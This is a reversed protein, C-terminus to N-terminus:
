KVSSCQSSICSLRWGKVRPMVRCVVAKQKDKEVKRSNDMCHKKKPLAKSFYLKMSTMYQVRLFWFMAERRNKRQLDKKKKERHCIIRPEAFLLYLYVTMQLPCSWGPTHKYM